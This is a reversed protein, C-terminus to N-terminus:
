CSSILPSGALIKMPNTNTWKWFCQSNLTYNLYLHPLVLTTKNWNPAMRVCLYSIVKKLTAPLFKTCKNSTLVLKSINKSIIGNEIKLPKRHWEGKVFRAFFLYLIEEYLKLLFFYFIACVIQIHQLKWIWFPITEPVIHPFVTIANFLLLGFQNSKVPIQVFVISSSKSRTSKGNWQINQGRYDTHM